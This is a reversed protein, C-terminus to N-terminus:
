TMTKNEGSSLCRALSPHWFFIWTAELVHLPSMLDLGSKGGSSLSASTFQILIMLIADFDNTTSKSNPNKHTPCHSCMIEGIMRITENKM